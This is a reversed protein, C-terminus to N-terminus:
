EKKIYNLNIVCRIKEDTCTSGSHLIKNDFLLLRNAVSEIEQGDKFVTKGDNSNVYYIATTGNINQALDTHFLFEKKEHTWPTLNAKVRFLAAPDIKEILPYIIRWNIESTSISYDRYFTHVFQYDHKENNPIKNKTFVKYENYYWPFMDGLLADRIELHSSTSLFNDIVKINM